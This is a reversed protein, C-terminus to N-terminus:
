VGRDRDPWIIRHLQLQMRIDLESSLIWAALDQPAVASVIPSMLIAVSALETLGQETIQRRAWDFDAASAIVFKIEDGAQLLELNERHFSDVCGSGPCKMDMIVHYRRPPPPLRLTGNTELLVTRGTAALAELLLPADPQLLPEGGTVEILGQGCREVTAVAEAVSFAQGPERSYETDCWQCALNCGSLRIFVCPLGAWTSEGQLSRFIETVQLM